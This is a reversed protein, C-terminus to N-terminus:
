IGRDAMFKAYDRRSQKAKSIQEELTYAM